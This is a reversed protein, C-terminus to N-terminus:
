VDRSTLRLVKLCYCTEQIHIEVDLMKDSISSNIHLAVFLPIIKDSPPFNEPKGMYWGNMIVKCAEGNYLKLEDREIFGDIKDYFKSSALAQIYDGINVGTYFKNVSLLKYKM